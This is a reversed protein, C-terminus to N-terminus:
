LGSHGVQLLEDGQFNEITDVLVPVNVNKAVILQQSLVVCQFEDKEGAPPKLIRGKLQNVAASHIHHSM